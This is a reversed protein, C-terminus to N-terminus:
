DAIVLCALIYRIRQTTSWIHVDDEFLLTLTCEVGIVTDGNERRHPRSVDYHITIANHVVVKSRLNTFRDFPQRIGLSSPCRITMAVRVLCILSYLDGHMRRM